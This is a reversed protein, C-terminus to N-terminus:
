EKTRADAKGICTDPYADSVLRRTLSEGIFTVLLGLLHAVLIIGSQEAAAADQSQKIEDFGELSGDARVRLVNLSPIEVKALTLARSLLSQFGEVGAFKVLHLRLKDIVQVAVDDKAGPSNVRAAECALLRRSLDRIELSATIM